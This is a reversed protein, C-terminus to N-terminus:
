TLSFYWRLLSEGYFLAVLAGLAIFPGFPVGDKMTKKGGLMLILGFVAGIIFASSIAVLIDPWGLILALAVALKLDGLGMGRELDAEVGNELDKKQRTIFIIAGFTVLAFVVAMLTNIILTQQFGFILGYSGSMTGNYLFYLPYSAKLWIIGVGLLGLLINAQDPIRAYRLDIISIVILTYAVLLWLAVFGYFWGIPGGMLSTAYINFYTYAFWPIGATLLGTVFEVIPYQWNLSHSCHRCTGKQILFSFLPVLEYWALTTQCDVCHSRGGIHKPSLIKNGPTYRLGVVNLFSGILLGAIFLYLFPM